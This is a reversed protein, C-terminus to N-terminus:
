TGFSKTKVKINKEPVGGACMYADGITKIKEIKYKKVITNFHFFIKDLEDIIDSTGAQESIKKFGQIDAYLVTAMEFRKTRTKVHDSIEKPLHKPPINAILSELKENQKSLDKNYDTLEKLQTSLEKNERLLDAIKLVLKQEQEKIMDQKETASQHLTNTSKGM